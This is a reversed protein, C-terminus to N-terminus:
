AHTNNLINFCLFSFVVTGNPDGYDFRTGLYEKDVSQTPKVPEGPGPTYPKDLVKIAFGIRLLMSILFIIARRELPRPQLLLSM